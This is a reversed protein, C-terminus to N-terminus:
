KKGHETQSMGKKEEKKKKIAFRETDEENQKWCTILQRERQGPKNQSLKVKELEAINRLHDRKLAELNTYYEQKSFVPGQLHPDACPLGYDVDSLCSLDCAAINDDESQLECEQSVLLLCVTLFSSYM